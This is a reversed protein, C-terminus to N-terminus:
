GEVHWVAHAGRHFFIVDGIGFRKPPMGKSELVISGELIIITEDFDYHWNFKGETCSWILTTAAGDASTSLPRSRAEPNGEIIWSPEIPSPELDANCHGTEILAFPMPVELISYILLIGTLGIALKERFILVRLIEAFASLTFLDSQRLGSQRFYRLRCAYYKPNCASKRWNRVVVFHATL